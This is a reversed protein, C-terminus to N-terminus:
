VRLKLANGVRPCVATNRWRDRHQGKVVQPNTWVLADVHCVGRAGRYWVDLLLLLLLSLWVLTYEVKPESGRDDISQLGLPGIHKPGVFPLHEMWTDLHVVIPRSAPWPLAPITAVRTEGVRKLMMMMMMVTMTRVNLRNKMRNRM